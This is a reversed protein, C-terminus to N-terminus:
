LAKSLQTYHIDYTLLIYVMRLVYQVAKNCHYMSRVHIVLYGLPLGLAYLRTRPVHEYVVDQAAM